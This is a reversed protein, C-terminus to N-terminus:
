FRLQSSSSLVIFLSMVDDTTARISPAAGKGKWDRGRGLFLFAARGAAKREGM